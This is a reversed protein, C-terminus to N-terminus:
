SNSLNYNGEASRQALSMKCFCVGAVILCVFVFCIALLFGLRKERGNLDAWFEMKSTRNTYYYFVPSINSFFKRGLAFETREPCRQLSRLDKISGIRCRLINKKDFFTYETPEFQIPSNGFKFILPSLNEMQANSKTCDEPKSTGCAMRIIHSCIIKGDASLLLHNQNPDVCFSKQTGPFFHKLTITGNARWFGSEGIDFEAIVNEEKREPNMQLNVEGFDKWDEEFNYSIGLSFGETKTNARRMYDAFTGRPALGLVGWQGNPWPQSQNMYRIKNPEEEDNFTQEAFLRHITSVNKYSYQVFDYFDSNTETGQFCDDAEMCSIGWPFKSSDAILTFNEAFELTLFLKQKAKTLFSSVGILTSGKFTIARAELKTTLSKWSKLCIIFAIFPTKM